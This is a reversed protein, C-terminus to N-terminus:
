GAWSMSSTSTTRGGAVVVSRVFADMLGVAEAAGPLGLDTDEPLRRAALEARLARAEDERARVVARRQDDDLREDLWSALEWSLEAHRTEDAAITTMVTRVAEDRASAAQRCAVLAAFTERVCGERANELAITFADKRRAPTIDVVPMSHDGALALVDRAHRVEDGAAARMRVVLGAPAGLVELDDALRAFAIVSAAEMHACGLLFATRRDSPPLRPVSLGEPKRGGLCPPAATCELQTASLYRCTRVSYGQVKACLEECTCAGADKPVGADGADSADSAKGADAADGCTETRTTLDFVLAREQADPCGTDQSSCAAAGAAVSASALIRAFLRRLGLGRGVDRTM